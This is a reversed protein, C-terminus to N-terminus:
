LTSNIGINSSYQSITKVCLFDTTLPNIHASTTETNTEGRCSATINKYSQAENGQMYNKFHEVFLTCTKTNYTNIYTICVCLCVCM